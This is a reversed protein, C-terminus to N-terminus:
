LFNTTASSGYAKWEKSEGDVIEYKKEGLKRLYFKPIDLDKLVTDILYQKDTSSWVDPERQYNQNVTFWDHHTCIYSINPNWVPLPM